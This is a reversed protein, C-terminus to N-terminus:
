AASKKSSIKNGGLKKKLKKGAIHQLHSTAIRLAARGHPAVLTKSEYGKNKSESSANVVYGNDAEEIGVNVRSHRPMPMQTAMMKSKRHKSKKAM